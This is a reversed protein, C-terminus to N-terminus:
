QLSFSTRKEHVDNTESALGSVEFGQVLKNPKRVDCKNKKQPFCPKGHCLTFCMLFGHEWQFGLGGNYFAISRLPCGYGRLCGPAAGLRQFDKLLENKTRQKNSHSPNKCFRQGHTEYFFVQKRCIFGFRSIACIHFYFFCLLDLPQLSKSKTRLTVSDSLDRINCNQKAPPWIDEIPFETERLYLRSPYTHFCHPFGLKDLTQPKKVTAVCDIWLSTGTETAFMQKSQM